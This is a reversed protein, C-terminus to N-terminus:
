SDNPWGEEDEAGFDAALRGLLAVYTAVHEKSPEREGAEWRAVAQRSVDLFRALEGQSLGSRLRIVKRIAPEPLRAHIARRDRAMTALAELEQYMKSM